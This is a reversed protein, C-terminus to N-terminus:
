KEKILGWIALDIYKGREYEYEKLICEMRFGLKRFLSMAQSNKPDVFAQLRNLCLEEFCYNVITTLAETGYGYGWHEPSLICSLTGRRHINMFEKIGVSGIYSNDNDRIIAWKISKSSEFRDHLLQIEYAAEDKNNLPARGYYRIALKNSLLNYYPSQDCSNHERFYLRKSKLVPFNM